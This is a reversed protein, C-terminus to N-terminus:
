SSLTLKPSSSGHAEREKNQAIVKDRIEKIYSDFADLEHSESAKKVQEEWRIIELEEQLWDAMEQRTERETAKETEKAESILVRKKQPLKKKAVAGSM